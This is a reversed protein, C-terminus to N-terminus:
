TVPLIERQTRICATYYTPHAQGTRSPQRDLVQTVDDLREHAEAEDRTLLITNWPSWQEHKDWRVLVLNFLNADQSLFSRGNWITMVLEMIDVSQVSRCV